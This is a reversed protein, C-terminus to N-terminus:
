KHGGEPSSPQPSFLLLIPGSATPVARQKGLELWARGDEGAAAAVEVQLASVAGKGRSPRYEEVLRGAPVFRAIRFEYQSGAVDVAEDLALAKTSSTGAQRIWVEHERLGVTVLTFDPAASKKDPPCDLTVRFPLSPQGSKAFDPFKAFIWQESKKGDHEVEILVAPNIRKASQNSPQNTKSDVGFHPFFKVVRVTAEFKELKHVAGEKAPLELAAGGDDGEAILTPVRTLETEFQALLSDREQKDAVAMYRWTGIFSVLRNRQPDNAMLWRKHSQTPGEISLDISAQGAAEQKAPVVMQELVAQPLFRRLRVPQHPAPLELVQNLDAPAMVSALDIPVEVTSQVDDVTLQCQLYYKQDTMPPHFGHGPPQASAAVASTLLSALSACCTMRRLRM